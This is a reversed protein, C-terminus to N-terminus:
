RPTNGSTDANNSPKMHLRSGLLLIAKSWFYGLIGGVLVDGFYHCGLFIRSYSILVALTYYVIRRKRSKDFAALITAGSFAAVAHGSPFSFDRPCVVAEYALAMFPRERQFLPKFGYTVALFASIVSFLLFVLIWKNRLIKNAFLVTCGIIWIFVVDPTVSLFSFITDTLANHPILARLFMSIVTDTYLLADLMQTNYCIYIHSIHSLKKTKSYAFYQLSPTGPSPTSGERTNLECTKSVQADAM